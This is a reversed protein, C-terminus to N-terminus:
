LACTHCVRQCASPIWASRLRPGVPGSGLQRASLQGADLLGQQLAGLGVPEIGVQPGQLPDRHYDGLQGPHTMVRPMDPRDQAVPQAPRQLTRLPARDFAVLLLDGAPDLMLPGPDFFRWAGLHPRRSKRRTPAGRPALHGLPPSAVGGSPQRLLRTFSPAARARPRPHPHSCGQCRRSPDASGSPGPGALSVLLHLLLSGAVVSRLRLVPGSGPPYPDPHLARGAPHAVGCGTLNAPSSAVSFTQPTPTAISGPCWNPVESSSRDHPSRPFWGQEGEQCAPWAAPPCARRRSTPM